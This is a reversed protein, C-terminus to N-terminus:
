LWFDQSFHGRYRNLSSFGSTTETRDYCLQNSSWLWLHKRRELEWFKALVEEGAKWVDSSSDSVRHGVKGLGTWHASDLQVRQKVRAGKTSATCPSVSGIKRNEFNQLWWKKGGYCGELRCNSLRKLHNRSWNSSNFGTTVEMKVMANRTTGICALVAGSIQNWFRTLEKKGGYQGVFRCDSSWLLTNRSRNSSSCGITGKMKGYCGQNHTGCAFVDESQQNWFEAWVVEDDGTDSAGGTDSAILM